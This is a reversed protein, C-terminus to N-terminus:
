PQMWEEVLYKPSTYQDNSAIVTSLTRIRFGAPLYLEVPLPEISGPNGLIFSPLGAGWSYNFTANAAPQFNSQLSLFVNTGDDVQLGLTRSGATSSTTIAYNFAILRWVAGTPVTEVIDAGAAPTTGVISRISGRAEFASGVKGFPYFLPDLATVYGACLTQTFQTTSTIQGRLYMLVAYCQGRRLNNSAFANITASLVFGEGLPLVSAQPSRTGATVVDYRSIMIAGDPRVIRLNVTITVNSVSPWLVVYLSDEPSIYIGNQPDVDHVRLARRVWDPSDPAAIQHTPTM